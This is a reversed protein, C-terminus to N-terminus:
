ERFTVKWGKVTGIEVREIRVISLDNWPGM